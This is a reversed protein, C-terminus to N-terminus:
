AAMMPPRTPQDPPNQDPAEPRAAGTDCAKCGYARCTCHTCHGVSPPIFEERLWGCQPCTMRAALMAAVSRWRGPTMPRVPAAKSADYLYAYRWGRRWYRIQAVPDHGNPRLGRTRLQRRTLLGEPACRKPYTPIGGPGTEYEEGHM